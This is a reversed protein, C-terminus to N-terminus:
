NAGERLVAALKERTAATDPLDDRAATDQTFFESSTQKDSDIGRGAPQATASKLLKDLYQAMYEPSCRLDESFKKTAAEDLDYARKVSEAISTITADSPPTLATDTNTGESAKKATELQKETDALKQTLSDREKAVKTCDAELATVTDIASEAFEVFQDSVGATKLQEATEKLADAASADGNTDATRNETNNETEM